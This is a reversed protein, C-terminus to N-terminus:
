FWVGLGILGNLKQNYLKDDGSAKIYLNDKNINYTDIVGQAFLDIECVDLDWSKNLKLSLCKLAARDVEYLSESKWPVVGFQIGLTLGQKQFTYDYGFELYSSYARCLTSDQENENSDAGSVMTNWSAYVHHEEPLWDDGDIGIKVETQATGEITNVDGFNFYNTGDCYYYHTVGVTVGHSRINAFIDVEPMLYTNPNGDDTEELGKRFGWDSAGVTAWTGFRFQVHEYDFGVELDPQFSLGGNYMGRWVYASLVEAGAEYAFEVEAKATLGIVMAGLLFLVKKM